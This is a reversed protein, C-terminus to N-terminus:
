DFLGPQRDDTAESLLRHVHRESYGTELAIQAITLSRRSHLELVRERRAAQKPIVLPGGGCYAALSDAIERGLAVCLPHHDGIALPVYIRTGGFKDALKLAADRGIAAARDAFMPVADWVPTEVGAPAIANVRIRDAAGEKAAVKVLQILGAKSAGYAAVGPEAKIGAASTTAVIAGGKGRMARM